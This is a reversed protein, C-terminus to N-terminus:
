PPSRRGNKVEYRLKKNKEIGYMDDPNLTNISLEDIFDPERV